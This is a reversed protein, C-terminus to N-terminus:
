EILELSTFNKFDSIVRLMDMINKIKCNTELLEIKAKLFANKKELIDALKM